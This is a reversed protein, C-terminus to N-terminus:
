EVPIRESSSQWRQERRQVRQSGGVEAFCGPVPSPIFATVTLMCGPSRIEASGHLVRRFGAAARPTGTELRGRSARAWKVAVDRHEELAHVVHGFLTMDDM